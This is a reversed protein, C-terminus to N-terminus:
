CNEWIQGGMAILRNFLKDRSKMATIHYSQSPEKGVIQIGDVVEKGAEAWGVALKGKWGMGGIKKLQQIDRVPMSFLIKSHRQDELKTGPDVTFYLIPTETPCDIVIAGKKGKYRAKFEVPGRPSVEHGKKPLIGLHNKANRSGAAAMARDMALKTEIGTATSGRFFSIIASGIGDKKKPQPKTEANQKIISPDPNV